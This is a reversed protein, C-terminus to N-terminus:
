LEVSDNYLINVDNSKFRDKLGFILKKNEM